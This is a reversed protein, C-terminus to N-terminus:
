SMRRWSSGAGLDAAFGFTPACRGGRGPTANSTVFQSRLFAVEHNTPQIALDEPFRDQNRRVTQLLANTRGVDLEALGSDLLLRM